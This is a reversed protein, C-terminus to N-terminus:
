KSLSSLFKLGECLDGKRMRVGKRVRVIDSQYAKNTFFEAGKRVIRGTVLDCDVFDLQKGQIRTGDYSALWVHYYIRIIM